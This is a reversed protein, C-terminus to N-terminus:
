IKIGKSSIGKSSLICAINEKSLNEYSTLPM